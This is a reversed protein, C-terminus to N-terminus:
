ARSEGSRIQGRFTKIDPTDLLCLHLRNLEAADTVAELAAQLDKPLPGFKHEFVQQLLQLGEAVRGRQEGRQEAQEVIDRTLEQFLPTEQLLNLMARRRFFETAVRVDRLSALLGAVALVENRQQSSQVGAQIVETSQELLVELSQGAMLPVLPMLGVLGSQLVPQPDQEWLRVVEYEVRVRGREFRDPVRRTAATDKLLILVQDPLIGYRNLVLLAYTAMRVPLEESPEGKQTLTQFEVHLLRV